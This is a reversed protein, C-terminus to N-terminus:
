KTVGKQLSEIGFYVDFYSPQIEGKIKKSYLLVSNEFFLGIVPNTKNFADIFKTYATVIESDIAKTKIEDLLLSMEENEFFFMNGEGCFSSFNLDPSVSISGIFADFNGEEIRTKYEEFPVSEINVRIGFDDLNKKLIEAAATRTTNEENTLIMFEARYFTGEKTTTYCGNTLSWGADELIKLAKGTDIDLSDNQKEYSLWDPRVPANTAVGYGMYAKEIIEARNVALSIAKRLEAQALLPSEHNIGLFNYIPTKISMYSTDAPDVFRGWDLGEALVMDITDSGLAYLPSNGGPLIKVRITDSLINGGWWRDNKVLYYQNGEGRDEFKYAGTGNPTFNKIDVDGAASKIVPFYLLNIFKPNAESLNFKVSHPGTTEVSEIFKVNYSYPSFDLKKIQNVTYILDQPVFYGGSHWAVSEKLNVTWTLGDASVFWEKALGPMPVNADNLYILGDYIIGLMDLNAENNSAIPCLTDPKYSFITLADVEDIKLKDGTVRKKLNTCACASIIIVITMIFAFLKKVM